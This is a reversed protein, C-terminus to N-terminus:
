QMLGKLSNKDRISKPAFKARDENSLRSAVAYKEVKKGNITDPVIILKGMQVLEKIAHIFDKNAIDRNLLAWLTTETVPEPNKVELMYNVIRQKAIAIPNMGYEGIANPMQKETETLIFHADEVDKLKIELRKELAALICTMKILHVHRRGIYNIFRTDEIGINYGYLYGLRDKVEQGYHFRGSFTKNLFGFVSSLAESTEKDPIEPWPLPKEPQGGYVLLTRSIFGTEVTNTPLASFLAEATTAGILSITPNPIMFKSSKLQYSYYDKNDWLDMLCTILEHSKYGIFSTFESACVFMTNVKDRKKTIISSLDTISIESFDNDENEFENLDDFISDSVTKGEDAQNQMAALLGQRQGATDTPSFKVKTKTKLLSKVLSLASSKRVGSPGVLLVYQNPYITHPGLQFHANRGIAAGGGVLVSWIHFLIPSESCDKVYNLYTQVFENQIKSFKTM